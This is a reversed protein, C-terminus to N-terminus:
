PACRYTALMQVMGALSCSSDAMPSCDLVLGDLPMAPMDYPASWSGVLLSSLEQPPRTHSRSAVLAVRPCQDRISPYQALLLNELEACDLCFVLSREPRSAAYAISSKCEDPTCINLVVLGDPRPLQVDDAVFSALLAGHLCVGGLSGWVQSAQLQALEQASGLRVIATSPDLSPVVDAVEIQTFIHAVTNSDLGRTMFIPGISRGHRVRDWPVLTRVSADYFRTLGRGFSVSDVGTGLLNFYTLSGIGGGQGPGFDIIHTPRPIGEFATVAPWDVPLVMIQEALHRTLNQRQSQAIRMDQGRFTDLVPVLLQDDKWLDDGALASQCVDRVASQLYPHHFPVNIDLFFSFVRPAPVPRAMKIRELIQHLHHLDAPDGNVVFKRHGNKLGIHIDLVKKPDRILDILGQLENQLLGGVLLMPSTNEPAPELMQSQGVFAETSKRAVLGLLRLAKKSNCVFQAYTKSASVALASVIGQSHGSLQDFSACVQGVERRAIRCAVLYQCLQTLGILPMSVLAPVMVSPHPPSDLWQLIPIDVLDGAVAHLFTSVFPKYTTALYQLESFYAKNPRTLTPDDIMPLYPTPLSQWHDSVAELEEPGLTQVKDAMAQWQEHIPLKGADSLSSMEDLIGRLRTDSEKM